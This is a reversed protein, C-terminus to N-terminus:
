IMPIGLYLGPDNVQPMDLIDCLDHALMSPTNANIYVTSKQLSVQQGSAHCYARLLNSINRCNDPTAKLFMLTDDAFLLYTLMPGNMSLQIGDLFGLDAARKIMRSFVDSVILFLYPSM